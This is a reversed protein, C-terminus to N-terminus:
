RLLLQMMGLTVFFAAAYLAATVILIVLLLGLGKLASRSRMLYLGLGIPVFILTFVIEWVNPRVLPREAADLYM